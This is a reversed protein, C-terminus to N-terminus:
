GNQRYWDSAAQHVAMMKVFATTQARRDRTGEATRLADCMAGLEDMSLEAPQALPEQAGGPTKPHFLNFLIRM